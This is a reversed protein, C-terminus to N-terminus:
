IVNAHRAPLRAQRKEEGVHKSDGEFLIGLWRCGGEPMVIENDQVREMAM